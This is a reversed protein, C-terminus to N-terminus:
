YLSRVNFMRVTGHDELQDLREFVGDLYETSSAYASTTAFQEHVPGNWSGLTEAHAREILQDDVSSLLSDIAAPELELVHPHDATAVRAAPGFLDDHMPITVSNPAALHLYGLHGHDYGLVGTPAVSMQRLHRDSDGLVYDVGIMRHLDVVGARASATGGGHRAALATTVAEMSMPNSGAAREVVFGDHPGTAREAVVAYLDEAHLQRVTRWAFAEQPQQAFAPKHVGHVCAGSAEDLLTVLRPTGNFGITHGPLAGLTEMPAHAFLQELRAVTELRGSM